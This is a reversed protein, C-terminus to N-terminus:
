PKKGIPGSGAVTRIVGASDIKRLRHNDGDTLWLNGSADYMMSEPDNLCADRAPGNDGCLDPRGNGAITRVMGDVEVMRLRHNHEDNILVQGSPLVLVAQPSDLYAEVAPGGDGAFGATGVGAITSIIGDADVKRVRHNSSDAIFLTESEDV